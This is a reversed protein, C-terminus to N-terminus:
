TWSSKAKRLEAELHKDYQRTYQCSEGYKCRFQRYQIIHTNHKMFKNKYQRTYGNIINENTCIVNDEWKQVTECVCM